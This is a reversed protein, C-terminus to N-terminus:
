LGGSAAPDLLNRKMLVIFCCLVMYFISVGYLPYMMPGHSYVGYKDYYFVWRFVNNLALPLIVGALEPIILLAKVTKRRVM